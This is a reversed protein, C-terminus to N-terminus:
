CRRSEPPLSRLPAQRTVDSISSSGKKTHHRYLSSGRSPLNGKQKPGHKDRNLPKGHKTKYRPTTPTCFFTSNHIFLVRLLFIFHNGYYLNSPAKNRVDQFDHMECSHFRSTILSNRVPKTPPPVPPGVPRMSGAGPTTLPKVPPWETPVVKTHNTVVNGGTRLLCCNVLSAHKHFGSFNRFPDKM